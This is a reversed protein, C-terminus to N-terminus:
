TLKVPGAREPIVFPALNKMISYTHIKKSPPNIPCCVADALQRKERSDTSNPLEAVEVDHVRMNSASQAANWYDHYNKRKICLLFCSQPSPPKANLGMLKASFKM